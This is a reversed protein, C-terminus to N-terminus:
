GPEEHHNEKQEQTSIPNVGSLSQPSLFLTGNPLFCQEEAEGRAGGALAAATGGNSPRDLEEVWAGGM